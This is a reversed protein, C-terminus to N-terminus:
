AAQLKALPEHTLIEHPRIFVLHSVPFGAEIPHGDSALKIGRVTMRVGNLSYDRVVTVGTFDSIIDRVLYGLPAEIFNRDLDPAKFFYSEGMAPVLNIAPVTVTGNGDDFMVKAFQVGAINEEISIIVGTEGIINSRVRVGVADYNLNM